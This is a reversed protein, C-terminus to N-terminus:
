FSFLCFPYMATPKDSFSLLEKTTPHYFQLEYAYLAVSKLDDDIGYKKDGLLPHNIHSFQVRIQHARGTKLDIDVLSCNNKYEIIKYDLEARKGKKEDNVVTVTNTKEDKYLYNILTGNNQIKGHVVALYKKQFQHNRVQESLRSAAKGTKAFVMVGGVMRDLRHILGLFVNGPKQYKEKLYEKIITLMDLDGTDDAQSLIGPKKVVVILHNDEYLIKM